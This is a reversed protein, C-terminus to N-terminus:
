KVAQALQSQTINVFRGKVSTWPFATIEQVTRDWTLGVNDYVQLLKQGPQGNKNVIQYVYINKIVDHYQDLSIPGEVTNVKTQYLANLLRSVDGVDGNVQKLAAVIFQAGAYGAASDVIPPENYAKQYAQIFAKNQATDYQSSWVADAIIGDAKNGLQQLNTEFSMVGFIDALPTKLGYQSAQQAFHLGDSGPLFTVVAQANPNLQSIYPGYNTTGVPPWEEQIVRGGLKIFTSDFGGITENGGAYDSAVTAVQRIGRSYLYKAMPDTLSTLIQSVRVLYPSTFKPNILLDEAGADGSIVLPVKAQRIYPAVAYASATNVIGTLLNVHDNEVLQKAKTLSVAPSGQGDAVILQIPHGDVQNHIQNFYLQFGREIPIGEASFSGTLPLILGIRIPSTSSAGKPSPAMSSTTAPAASGCAAVFFAGMGIAALKKIRNWRTRRM